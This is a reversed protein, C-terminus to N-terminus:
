IERGRGELSGGLVAPWAGWVGVGRGESAGGRAWNGTAPGSRVGLLKLGRLRGAAPKERHGKVEPM